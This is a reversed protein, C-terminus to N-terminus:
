LREAGPRQQLFEDVKDIHVTYVVGAFRVMATTPIKKEVEKKKTGVLNVHGCRECKMKRIAM